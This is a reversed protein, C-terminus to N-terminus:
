DNDFIKMNEKLININVFNNLYNVCNDRYSEDKINFGEIVEIFSKKNELDIDWGVKHVVLNRWPTKTSVLIPIGVSLAEAYIHGYNEGLSPVFLINYKILTIHIEDSNLVGMYNFHINEPLDEMLRLCKNWYLVDEIPGYIDFEIERRVEKLVEIVYILNKMLSIRAIFCIKLIDHHNIKDKRITTKTPINKALKINKDKIGKLNLIDLREYNSSAHWNINRYFGLLTFIKLFIIKKIRKNMLANYSLEGRPALVVHNNKILKFRALILPKITFTLNFLSNLYLVDYDISKIISKLKLISTNQNIYYVEARGLKCWTNLEVNYPEIDGLDRDRTIIKFNYDEGLSEVLNSITRIPGGAKFGPLYCGVVILITKKNNLM